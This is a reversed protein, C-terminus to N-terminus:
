LVYGAYFVDSRSSQERFRRKRPVKLLRAERSAPESGM